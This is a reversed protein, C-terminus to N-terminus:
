EIGFLKVEFILTSYAPIAGFGQPGYALEAPIYLMWTSGVPMLQLAETWGPIVQSVGFTIDQGRDMSSDFVTGDLLTGHYHVRVRDNLTPKRGTGQTIIRYQLGSPTVHVGEKKANEALFAEGAERNVAGEIAAQEMQLQMMAGQLFWQANDTTMNGEFSRMGNILGQRILEYNVALGPIGMLGLEQAARLSNGINTALAIIEVHETSVKLGSEIGRMMANFREASADDVMYHTKILDGQILGFAFNLSDAQNKLAPESAFSSLSFVAVAITIISLKKM